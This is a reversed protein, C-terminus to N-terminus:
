EVIMTLGNLARHSPRRQRAATSLRVFPSAIHTDSQYRKTSTESVDLPVGPEDAICDSLFISQSKYVVVPVGDNADVVGRGKTKSFLPLRDAHRRFISELDPAYPNRVEKM